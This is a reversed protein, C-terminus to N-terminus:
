TKKFVLAYLGGFPTKNFLPELFSLLRLQRPFFILTEKRIKKFCHQEALHTFESAFFTTPFKNKSFGGLSVDRDIDLTKIIRRTMPNIPNMDYNFFLGNNKLVRQTEKLINKFIIGSPIHHFMNFAVVIDFSADKFKMNSADMRKFCANPIEKSKAKQIMPKSYDIGIVQKFYKSFYMEVEGTGCGVSLCTLESNNGLYRKLIKLFHKTKIKVFYKHNRGGRNEYINGLSNLNQQFYGKNNM